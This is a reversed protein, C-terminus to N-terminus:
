AEAEGEESEVEDSAEAGAAGAVVAMHEDAAMALEFGDPLKIDSALVTQGESFASADVEIEDPIKSPMARITITRHLPMLVGGRSMGVFHLEVETEIAVGRVVRRFEVHIVNDGFADYQIERVMATEVGAGAVEIDFLSEHHRRAALFSAAELSVDLNDKDQGQISAPIRGQARLARAARSGVRDRRTAKLESSM